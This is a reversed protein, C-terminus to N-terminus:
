DEKEGSLMRSIGEARGAWLFGNLYSILISISLMFSGVSTTTPKTPIWFLLVSQVLLQYLCIFRLQSVQLFTRIRILLVAHLFMYYHGIATNWRIFSNSQTSSELLAQGGRIALFLQIVAAYFISNAPISWKVTGSWMFQPHTVLTWASLLCAATYCTWLRYYVTDNWSVWSLVTLTLLSTWLLNQHFTVIAATPRFQLVIWIVGVLEYFVIAHLGFGYKLSDEEDDQQCTIITSTTPFLSKECPHHQHNMTTKLGMPLLGYQFPYGILLLHLFLSRNPTLGIYQSLHLLITRVTTSTTAITSSDDDEDDDDDNEEEIHYRNRTM